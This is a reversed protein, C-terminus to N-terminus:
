PNNYPLNQPSCNQCSSTTIVATDERDKQICWCPSSFKMIYIPTAPTTRPWDKTLDCRFIILGHIVMMVINIRMIVFPPTSAKRKM